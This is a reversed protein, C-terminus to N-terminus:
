FQIEYLFTQPCVHRGGEPTSSSLEFSRYTEFIINYQLPFTSESKATAARAALPVFDSSTASQTFFSVTKDFIFWTVM